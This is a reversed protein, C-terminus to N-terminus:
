TSEYRVLQKQAKSFKENYLSLPTKLSKKTKGTQDEDEGMGLMVDDSYVDEMPFEEVQNSFELHADTDTAESRNDLIGPAGSNILTRKGPLPIATSGKYQVFPLIAKPGSAPLANNRALAGLFKKSISNAGAASNARAESLLRLLRSVARARAENHPPPLIEFNKNSSKSSIIPNNRMLVPNPRVGGNRQIAAQIVDPYRKDKIVDEDLGEGYDLFDAGPTMVKKRTTPEISLCSCYQLKRKGLRVVVLDNVLGM